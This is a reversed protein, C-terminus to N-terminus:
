TVTTWLHERVMYGFGASVLREIFGEKTTRLSRAAEAISWDHEHLKMLLFARRAQGDSLRMVKLYQLAGARDVIREGIYNEEGLAMDSRFRELVFPGVRQVEEFRVKRGFLGSAMAAEYAAVDREAEELLQAIDDLSRVRAADIRVDSGPVDHASAGYRELIDPFMDLLLSRHMDRYESPQPVAFASAFADAVFLLMGCQSPHIEFTRLADDFGTIAHGVYMSESRPSLGRSLVQKSYEPWMVDPGSFHLALLGEMALHLPLFRLSGDAERKAMRHMLRATGKGFRVGDRARALQAGQAATASKGQVELVLAHPIYSFYAINPDEPLGDVSVGRVDENLKRRHLRLAPSPEARLLPVIRIGQWVQSPALTLGCLELSAEHTKPM